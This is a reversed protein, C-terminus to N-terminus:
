RGRERERERESNRNQTQQKKEVGKKCRVSVRLTIHKILVQSLLSQHNNHYRKYYNLKHLNEM